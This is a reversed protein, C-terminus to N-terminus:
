SIRGNLIENIKLKTHLSFDQGLMWILYERENVVLCNKYKGFTFVTRGESNETFKRDYDIIRIEENCLEDITSIYNSLNHKEIQKSLIKISAYNENELSYSEKYNEETYFKYVSALDRKNYKNYLKLTDIFKTGYDFPINIKARLFEEVLMPVDFNMINFGALDCDYFYNYIEIAKEKFTSNTEHEQNEIYNKDYDEIENTKEITFIENLIERKGDPFIKIGSLRIICDKHTIKGTAETKIFIIPRKLHLNLKEKRNEFNDGFFTQNVHKFSMYKINTNNFLIYLLDASHKNSSISKIDFAHKMKFKIIEFSSICEIMNAYASDLPNTYIIPQFVDIKVEEEEEQLKYSYTTRKIYESHLYKETKKLVFGELPIFSKDEYELQIDLDNPMSRLNIHQLMLAVSGTIRVNPNLIKIEKYLNLLKDLM